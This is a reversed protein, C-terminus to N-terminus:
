SQIEVKSAFTQYKEHNAESTAEIMGRFRGIASGVTERNKLGFGTADILQNAFPLASSTAFAGLM